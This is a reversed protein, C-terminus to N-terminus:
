VFNIRTYKGDKLNMLEARFWGWRGQEGPYVEEFRALESLVGDVQEPRISMAPWPLFDKFGLDAKLNDFLRARFSGISYVELTETGRDCRVQLSM